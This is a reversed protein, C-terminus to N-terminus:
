REQSRTEPDSDQKGIMVGALAIAAGVLYPIANPALRAVVPILNALFM